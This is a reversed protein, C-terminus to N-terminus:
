RLVKFWEITKLLGEELGTRPEWDLLQRAKTIDPCRRKPDEPRPKEFVIPSRSGALKIILKALDLITTEQPNGINIAQGRVEEKVLALLHAEITDAVYCFSRTQKGDGHVTLPENRLAQAIFRTVVRAYSGDERLRPGYTNFIRTIRADVGYQNAYAKVLAEGFRKGEDYCSRPGVPNVKGWYSEPTPIVEANGYVESSSTFLFVADSKRAIELMNLTGVSNALLTEVPHEFYDEPSARSALHLVFDYRTGDWAYTTVDGQAFSFNKRGILHQIFEAKGTSLDDLCTLSAGLLVLVDCLWSGLFGAGGTILVRRNEFPNREELSAVLREVDREIVSAM